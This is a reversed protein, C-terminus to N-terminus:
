RCGREGCHAEVLLAVVGLFQDHSVARGDGPETKHTIVLDLEPMVLIHQGVAGLGTFAGRYVAPLDPNDFVWWLAGYGFAGDRRRVPNMESRATLASTSEAVWAQPVLQRGAWAGERLMLYGIRAMDRTSLHMHYALHVSREPNGTRRHRDREFEQMGIPNALEQELADYISLGAEQEFISGLANFDWNSYLYYSGPEQSGRPPASALDDGGNSAEHYVGSRAMLLDRVTAQREARTLGGVDDVGLEELTADLNIEDRAAYIGYLMSLVSKRVSALYSIRELDGYSMLTRGGVVAMFATTSMGSLRERVRDLGEASWGVCEPQELVEWEQAPYVPDLVPCAAVQAGVDRPALLSVCLLIVSMMKNATVNLKPRFFGVLAVFHCQNPRDCSKRSSIM